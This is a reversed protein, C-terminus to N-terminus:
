EEIPIWIEVGGLGTKPNFEPGYREFSPAAVVKLGSQPIWKNWIATM